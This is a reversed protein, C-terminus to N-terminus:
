LITSLKSTSGIGTLTVTFCLIIISAFKAIATTRLVADDVDSCTNRRVFCLWFQHGGSRDQTGSGIFWWWRLYHLYIRFALLM